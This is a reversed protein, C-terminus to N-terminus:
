EEQHIHMGIQRHIRLSHDSLRKLYSIGYGQTNGSYGPVTWDVYFKGYRIYGDEVEALDYVWTELSDITAPHKYYAEFHTILNDRGKKLTDAYPFYAGDESYAAASREPVRAVVNSRNLAGYALLEYPVEVGPRAKLPTAQDELGAVILHAPDEIRHLYGFSEAKLKLDGNDIRAWVNIYKGRLVEGEVFEKRFLGIEMVWEKFPLVEITERTYTKLKQRKFITTYYQEIEAPEDLLPHYEIMLLADSRFLDRIKDFSQSTAADILQANKRALVPKLAEHDPTTQAYLSAFMGLCLMLYLFPRQM